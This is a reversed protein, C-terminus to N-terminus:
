PAAHCPRCGTFSPYSEPEAEARMEHCGYCSRIDDRAHFAAFMSLPDRERAGPTVHCETCPVFYSGKSGDHHCTICTIDQRLHDQHKFIVTMLASSGGEVYTPGSIADGGSAVGYAGLMGLLVLLTTLYRM